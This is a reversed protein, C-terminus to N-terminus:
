PADGQPQEVTGTVEAVRPPMIHATIIAVVSVAQLGLICAVAEGIVESDDCGKRGYAAYEGDETMAVAVRVAVAGPPPPPPIQARLATIEARLKSLWDHILQPAHKGAAAATLFAIRVDGLTEPIAALATDKSM